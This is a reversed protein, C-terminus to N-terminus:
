LWRENKADLDLLKFSITNQKRHKQCAELANRAMLNADSRGWDDYEVFFKRTHTQGDQSEFKELVKAVRKM